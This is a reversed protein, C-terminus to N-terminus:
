QEGKAQTILQNILVVAGEFSCKGRAYALMISEPALKIQRFSVSYNQLQALREFVEAQLNEVDDRLFVPRPVLMERAKDAAEGIAINGFIVGIFLGEVDKFDQRRESEPRQMLREIRDSIEARLNNWDDHESVPKPLTLFNICERAQYYSIEGACIADLMDDVSRYPDIKKESAPQKLLRKLLNRAEIKMQAWDTRKSVPKKQKSKKAIKKAM